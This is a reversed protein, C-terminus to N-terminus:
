GFYQRNFLETRLVGQKWEEGPSAKQLHVVLSKQSKGNGNASELEYWSADPDVDQKLNGCIDRLLSDHAQQDERSSGSSRVSIASKRVRVEVDEINECEDTHLPLHLRLSEVYQMWAVNGHNGQYPEMPFDRLKFIRLCEVAETTGM